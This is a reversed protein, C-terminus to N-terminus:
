ETPVWYRRHHEVINELVGGAGEITRYSGVNDDDCTVLAQEVGLAHLEDLSARLLASAVGRRRASPRVAYGIHGGLNALFENLEFRVSARGLWEGDEVAWLICGRVFGELATTRESRKAACMAAFGEPTECQERTWGFAAMWSGADEDGDRSREFEDWAALFSKQYQPEPEIVDMRVGHWM